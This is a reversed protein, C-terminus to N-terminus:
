LWGRKRRLKKPFRLYLDNGSVAYICFAKFKATNKITGSITFTKPHYYSHLVRAFSIDTSDEQGDEITDIMTEEVSGLKQYPADPDDAPKVWMDFSKKENM